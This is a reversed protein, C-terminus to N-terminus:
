CKCQYGRERSLGGSKGGGGVVFGFFPRDKRTQESGRGVSPNYAARVRRDEMMSPCM